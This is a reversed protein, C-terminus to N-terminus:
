GCFRRCVVEAVFASLSFPHLSGFSFPGSERSIQQNMTVDTSRHIGLFSRKEMDGGEQRFGYM